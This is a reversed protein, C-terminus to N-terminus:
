NEKATYKPEAIVLDTLEGTYPSGDANLARVCRVTVARHGRLTVEMAEPRRGAKVIGEWLSRGDAELSVQFEPAPTSHNDNVGIACAFKGWERADFTAFPSGASLTGYGEFVKGGVAAEGRHYEWSGAVPAVSGDFAKAEPAAKKPAAAAKRSSSTKSQKSGHGHPLSLKVGFYALISLLSAIVGMLGRVRATM